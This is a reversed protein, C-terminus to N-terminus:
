LSCYCWKNLTCSVNMWLLLNSCFIRWIIVWVIFFFFFFFSVLMNLFVGGFMCLIESYKWMLLQQMLLMVTAMNVRGEQVTSKLSNRLGMLVTQSFLHGSSFCLMFFVTHLCFTWTPLFSSLVQTQNNCHVEYTGHTPITIIHWCYKPLRWAASEKWLIM